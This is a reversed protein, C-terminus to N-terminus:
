LLRGLSRAFDIPHRANKSLNCTSCTLQLNARENSGGLARPMIHDVHPTAGVTERCYACRGGQLDRLYAVIEGRKRLHRARAAKRLKQRNAERWSAEWTLSKEPNNTRWERHKRRATQVDRAWRDKVRQIRSERNRQYSASNHAKVKDPNAVKWSRLYESRKIKSSFAM